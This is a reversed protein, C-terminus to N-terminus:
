KKKQKHKLSYNPPLNPNARDSRKPKEDVEEENNSTYTSSNREANQAFKSKADSYATGIGAAKATDPKSTETKKASVPQNAQKTSPASDVTSSASSSPQSFYNSSTPNNSAVNSAINSMSNEPKSNKRDKYNSYMEKAKGAGAKIGKAGKSALKSGAKKALGVGGAMSALSMVGSFVSGVGGIGADPIIKSSISPIMVIGVLTIICLGTIKLSVDLGLASMAAVGINKTDKLVSAYDSLPDNLIAESVVTFLALFVAFFVSWLNVAMFNKFWNTLSNKWVPIITIAIALPGMIYLFAQLLVQVTSFVATGIFILVMALMMVLEQISYEGTALDWISFEFDPQNYLKKFIAFPDDTGTNFISNAISVVVKGLSVSWSEYTFFLFLIFLIKPFNIDRLDGEGIMLKFSTYIIYALIFSTLLSFTVNHVLYMTKNISDVLDGSLLFDVM